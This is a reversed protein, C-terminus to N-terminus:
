FGVVVHGGVRPGVVVVGVMSGVMMCRRDVVLRCRDVMKWNMVALRQCHRWDDLIYRGGSAM